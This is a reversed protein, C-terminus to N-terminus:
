AKKGRLGLAAPIAQSGPDNIQLRWTRQDPDAGPIALWSFIREMGKLQPVLPDAWEAVLVAGGDEVEDLIEPVGIDELPTDTGLRYFDLHHVTLAGPYTNVLTFTPSVVDETIGLARCLGRAFCTKGAGLDGYLLVVDGGGLLSGFRYGLDETAAEDGTVMWWPFDDVAPLTHEAAAM